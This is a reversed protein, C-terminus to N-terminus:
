AGAGAIGLNEFKTYQGVWQLMATGTEGNRNKRIIIEAKNKAPNDPTNKYVSDRYIFMVIDSDQELNGSERLDQLMPRKNPRTELGRNLQSLALIPVNLEKALMKLGRSMEGIELDRRSEKRQTPKMLQLYDVVILGLGHYKTHYQKARAKINMISCSASEDILIPLSNITDTAESLKRWATKHLKKYTRLNLGAEAALLRSSLQEKSMELSFFLVPKFNAVYRAINSALASKGMAPRAALLLLDSPQLGLILKDIEVFGTSIGLLGGNLSQRLEIHDLNHVLLENFPVIDQRPQNSRLAAIDNEANDIITEPTTDPAPQTCQQYMGMAILMLKRLDAQEKIINAYYLLNSAIPAADAIQSVYGAGGVQELKGTNNLETIVTVLDVPVDKHTLDIMAQYIASHASNYFDEPVLIDLVTHFEKNSIFIASLVSEEAERNQPPHELFQTM